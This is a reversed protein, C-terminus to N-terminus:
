ITIRLGFAIRKPLPAGGTDPDLPQHTARWLIGLNSANISLSMEKVPLRKYVKKTFSYNLHIYQLRIHDAREVVATSSNYFQDRQANVPYIMSPINTHGEDGPQQWRKQYDGYADLADSAGQFLRQYYVANRRNFYHGLSYTLNFSLTLQKVQFQHHMAGFFVPRAPGSFVQNELNGPNLIQSYDESPEGNVYGQPNGNIGSLGAYPYSIILYAEKGVIPTLGSGDNIYSLPPYYYQKVKTTNYSFLLGTQWQLIGKLIIANLQVDLGRTGIQGINKTISEGVGLTIDAPIPAILDTCNKYYFDISGTFRKHKSGFDLAINTQAIQEWRLQPNPVNDVFSMPLNVSSPVGSYRLTLVGAITNNVNGQYGYSMRLKLFPLAGLKYFPEASIEWGAGASWLPKWQNNTKVGFLNSGDRRASATVFYRNKHTLTMNGYLSVFRNALQGTLMNNPVSAWASNYLPYQQIFNMNAYTLVAPDYGYHTRGFQESDQARYEAGLLGKIHYHRGQQEVNLQGRVAHLRQLNTEREQIAKYPIASELYSGGPPTYTNVLNRVYYSQPDYVIEKQSNVRQHQYQVELQIGKVIRYQAILNLLLDQHQRNDKALLMDELPVYHWDLLRGGGVTDIYAPRYDKPYFLAQGAEDKLQAYPWRYAVSQNPRQQRSVVYMIGTQLELKPTVRFMTHQKLSIRNSENFQYQDEIEDYGASLYHNMQQNGGSLNLAYQRSFSTRHLYQNIDRRFDQRRLYDIQQQASAPDLSGNRQRHLIEAVPPNIVHISNSQLNADYYGQNFLETQLDIFESSPMRPVYYLDPKFGLQANTTLGITIPRNYQGKKTTIVIVGNGAKAGWISSAAADKLVTINIVDNPNINELAGEYPFNDLVILPEQAGYAQSLTSLGRVMIGGTRGLSRGAGAVSLMGSVMGDLRETITTTIRESLRENSIIGVSGTVATSRMKEYGTNVVVEDMEQLRPSLIIRLEGGTFPVPIKKPHYGTHTIVLTDAYPVMPLFFQGKDNTRTMQQYRQYALSVGSLPSLSTEQVVTGRLTLSDPQPQAYANAVALLLLLFFYKKM